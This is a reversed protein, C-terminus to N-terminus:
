HVGEDSRHHKPLSPALKKKGTELDSCLPQTEKGTDQRRRRQEFAPFEPSELDSM